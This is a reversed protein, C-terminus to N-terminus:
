YHWITTMLFPSITAILVGSWRSVLLASLILLLNILSGTVFQGMPKTLLQASVLLALFIATTTIQFTKVNSM